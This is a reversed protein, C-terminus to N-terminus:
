AGIRRASWIALAMISALVVALYAFWILTGKWATSWKSGGFVRHLSVFHGIGVATMPLAGGAATGIVPRLGIGATLVLFVFAHFHVSYYLHAAYFRQSKRFLVWTLLGFAPMFVFMVRPLNHVLSENALATAERRREIRQEPTLQAENNVKSITVFPRDAKPAVAAGAFFILSCTLYLRLPSIYRQRRGELFERTLQGPKSLLLKLTQLIKGDLHAFEHIAEHVFEHLSVNPSSTKQGCAHCYKGALPEGCNACLGAPAVTASVRSPYWRASLDEACPAGLATSYAAHSLQPQDRISPPM